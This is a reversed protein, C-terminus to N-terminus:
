RSSLRVEGNGKLAVLRTEVSKWASRRCDDLQPVQYSEITAYSGCVQEIAAAIRKHFRATGAPTALEAPSVTVTATRLEAHLPAASLVGAIALPMISRM